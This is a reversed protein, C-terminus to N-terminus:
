ELTNVDDSESMRQQKSKGLIDCVSKVRIPVKGMIRRLKRNEVSKDKHEQREYYFHEKKMHYNEWM